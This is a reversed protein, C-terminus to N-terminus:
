FVFFGFTLLGPSSNLVTEREVSKNEYNVLHSSLGQSRLWLALPVLLFAFVFPMHWLRVVPKGQFGMRHDEMDDSSPAGAM